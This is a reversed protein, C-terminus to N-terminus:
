KSGSEEQGYIMAYPYIRAELFIELFHKALQRLPQDLAEHPLQHHYHARDVISFYKFSPNEIHM